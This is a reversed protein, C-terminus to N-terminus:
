YYKSNPPLGEMQDKELMTGYSEVVRTEFEIYRSEKKGIYTENPYVITVDFDIWVVREPDGPVILVNKPYPDNHEILASHIQRIGINVKEFRKKSYTDSNMPLPNPLYEILIASPPNIDCQFADLHPAWSTPNIAIM